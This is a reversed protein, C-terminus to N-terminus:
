ITEKGHTTEKKTKRTKHLGRSLAEVPDPQPETAAFQGAAMGQLAALATAWYQLRPVFEGKELEPFMGILPLVDTELIGVHEYSVTVAKELLLDEMFPGVSDVLPGGSTVGKPQSPLSFVLEDKQISFQEAGIPTGNVKVVLGMYPPPTPLKAQNSRYVVLVADKFTQTPDNVRAALRMSDEITSILSKLQGSLQQDRGQLQFLLDLIEKRTM